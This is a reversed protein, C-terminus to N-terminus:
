PREVDGADVLHGCARWVRLCKSTVGASSNGAEFSSHITLEADKVPSAEILYVVNFENMGQIHFRVFDREFARASKAGSARFAPWDTLKHDRLNREPRVETRALAKLLAPAFVESDIPGSLVTPEAEEILLGGAGNRNMTAIIVRSGERDIYLAVHQVLRKAGFPGM